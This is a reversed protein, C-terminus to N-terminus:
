RSASPASAAHPSLRPSSMFDLVADAIPQGTALEYPLFTPVPNAELCQWTGDSAIRFDFGALLLDQSRAFSICRAKIRGPLAAPAFSASRSHRYDVVRSQVETGFAQDGVVHVRM